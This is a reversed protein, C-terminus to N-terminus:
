IKRICVAMLGSVLLTTTTDVATRDSGVPCWLKCGCDFLSLLLHWQLTVGRNKLFAGIRVAATWTRGDLMSSQFDFDGNSSSTNTAISANSPSLPSTTCM